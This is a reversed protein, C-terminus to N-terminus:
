QGRDVYTAAAESDVSRCTADIHEVGGEERGVAHQQAHVPARDIGDLNSETEQEDKCLRIVGLYPCAAETARASSYLICKDM